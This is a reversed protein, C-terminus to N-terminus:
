QGMEPVRASREEVRDCVPLEALERAVELAVEKEEKESPNVGGVDRVGEVESSALTAATSEDQLATM